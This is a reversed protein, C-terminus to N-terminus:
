SNADGRATRINPRAIARAALIAPRPNIFTRSSAQLVQFHLHPGDTRGTVGVEGITDGASVRDGVRVTPRARMHFYSEVFRGGLTTLTVGFGSAARPDSHVKTVFGENTARIPTGVPVMWIDIGKHLRRAGPRGRVAGFNAAVRADLNALPFFSASWSEAVSPRHHHSELNLSPAPTAAGLVALPGPPYSPTSM